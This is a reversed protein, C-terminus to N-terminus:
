ISQGGKRYRYYQEWEEKNGFGISRLKRELFLERKMLYLYAEEQEDSYGRSVVQEIM